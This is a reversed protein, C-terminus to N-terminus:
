QDETYQVGLVKKAIEGMDVTGSSLTVAFREGHPVSEM